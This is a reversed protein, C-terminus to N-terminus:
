PAGAVPPECKEAERTLGGPAQIHRGPSATHASGPFASLFIDLVTPRLPQLSFLPRAIILKKIPFISLASDDLGRILVKTM